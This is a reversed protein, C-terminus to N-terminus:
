ISLSLVTKSLNITTYCKYIAEEKGIKGVLVSLILFGPVIQFLQWAGM